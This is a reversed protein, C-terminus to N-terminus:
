HLEKMKTTPRPINIMQIIKTSAQTPDMMTANTLESMYPRM